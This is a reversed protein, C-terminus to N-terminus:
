MSHAPKNRTHKNEWVCASMVLFMRNIVHILLPQMRNRKALKLARRINRCVSKSPRWRPTEMLGSFWHIHLIFVNKKDRRRHGFVEITGFTQSRCVCEKIDYKLLTPQSFLIDWETKEAASNGRQCSATHTHKPKCTQLQRALETPQSLRASPWLSFEAGEPHLVPLFFIDRKKRKIHRRYVLPFLWICRIQKFLDCLM